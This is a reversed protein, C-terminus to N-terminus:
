LRLMGISGMNSKFVYVKNNNNNLNLLIYIYIIIYKYLTFYSFTRDKQRKLSM